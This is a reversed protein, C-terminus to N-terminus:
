MLPWILAAFTCVAGIIMAFLGFFMSFVAYGEGYLKGNSGETVLMSHGGLLAAGLGLIIPLVFTGGYIVVAWIGVLKQEAPFRLGGWSNSGGLVALTLAIVSLILATLATPCVQAEPHRRHRALFPTTTM